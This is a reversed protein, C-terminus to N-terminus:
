RLSPAWNWKLRPLLRQERDNVQERAFQRGRKERRADGVAVGGQQIGGESQPPDKRSAELERATVAHCNRCSMEFINRVFKSTCPMVVVGTRVTIKLEKKLM